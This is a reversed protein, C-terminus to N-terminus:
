ADKQQPYFVSEVSSTLKIVRKAIDIHMGKGKLTFSKHTFTAPGDSTIKEDKSEYAATPTEVKVTDGYLVSVGGRAEAKLLENGNLYLTATPAVLEITTEEDRYFHLKAETIEATQSTPMYEGRAAHVEWIKKDGKTESRHFNELIFTSQTGKKVDKLPATNDAEDQGKERLAVIGLVFFLALVGLSLVISSTRSFRM